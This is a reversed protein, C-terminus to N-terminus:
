RAGRPAGSPGDPGRAAWAAPLMRREEEGGTLSLSARLGAWSRVEGEVEGIWGRLARVAGPPKSALAVAEEMAAPLVEAPQEVCRSVLGVRLAERGDIVGPDLLRARAPGDGVKLRLWPASVAPSIGLRVVPYGLKAGADTVVLDGAGLLACGGALAAGHAAIVVPLPQERLAAVAQSLGTLLSRLVTAGGGGAEAEERCLSLDFGACFVPGEGTLLLARTRGERGAASAQAIASELSGLMEPTLANRKEGRALTIVALPGRFEARIM